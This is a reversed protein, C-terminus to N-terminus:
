KNDKNKLTLEKKTEILIEQIYGNLIKNLGHWTKKIRHDTLRDQPFNYTKIKDSRDGTKISTKRKESLEKQQKELELKFLKSRLIMLADAKNKHQDKSDQCSVIIGTPIHLIRVASYTTNVSQGGPGSSRFTDIRLDNSNIQITIDDIEPMVVVSAASTHIRGQSETIPIRQVRHVGSEIRLFGYANNGSIKLIAEKVGNHSSEILGLVRINWNSINAFRIYMRMLDSAFLAAEEGGIGPRIELIANKHDNPDNPLLLYDLKNKKKVLENNLQLLEDKILKKFEEDNSQFLENELESIYKSINDIEKKLNIIESLFNFRTYLDELTKPDLKNPNQLKLNIENFESELEQFYQIEM